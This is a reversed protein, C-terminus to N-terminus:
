RGRVDPMMRVRPRRSRHASKDDGSSSLLLNHLQPWPIETVGTLMRLHGPLLAPLAAVAFLVLALVEADLDARLRGCAQAGALDEVVTRWAAAYQPGPGDGAIAAWVMLRLDEVDMTLGDALIRSATPLRASATALRDELVAAFLAAKNGFYHYLMRKNVGADAAIADVRAGAPGDEAFATAAADLIRQRAATPDRKTVM